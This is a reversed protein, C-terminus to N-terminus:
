HLGKFVAIIKKNKLKKNKKYTKDWYILYRTEKRPHLKTGKRAKKVTLLYLRKYM